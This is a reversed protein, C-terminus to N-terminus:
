RAQVQHQAEFEIIQRLVNVYGGSDGLPAVHTQKRARSLVITTLQKSRNTKPGCLYDFDFVLVFDATLGRASHATTLRLSSTGPPIRRNSEDVLDLYSIDKQRLFTKTAEYRRNKGGFIILGDVADSQTAMRKLLALVADEVQASDDFHIEAGQAFDDFDFSLQESVSTRSSGQQAWGSLKRKAVALGKEFSTLELAERFAQSVLFSQSGHRFNRHLNKVEADKMMDLLKESIRHPPYLEQDIGFSIAWATSDDALQGLLDVGEEPFDQAEDVLILDFTEVGDSRALHNALRRLSMRLAAGLHEQGATSLDKALNIDVPSLYSRLQYLDMALFEGSEWQKKRQNVERRVESALTKNYCTYLVRHDQQLHHFGVELLKVTKGTGPHGRFVIRASDLYKKVEGKETLRISKPFLSSSTTVLTKPRVLEREKDLVPLFSSWSTTDKVAAQPPQQGFMPNGANAQLRELFVGVEDMEDTFLMMEADRCAGEDDVFAELWEERLINPWWAASHVWCKPVQDGWVSRANLVLWSKLRQSNDHAQKAPHQQRKDPPSTYVVGQRSYGEIQGISHGKIEIVSFGVQPHGLLIDIDGVGRLYNLAFWLHMEDDDIETLWKGTRYEGYRNPAKEPVDGHIVAM